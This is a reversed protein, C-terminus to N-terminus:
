ADALRLLQHQRGLQGLRDLQQLEAVELEVREDGLFQRLIRQELRAGVLRIFLGGGVEHAVLIRAVLGGVVRAGVVEDGAPGVVVPREIQVPGTLRQLGVAEGIDDRGAAALLREVEVPEFIGRRREGLMQEVLQV